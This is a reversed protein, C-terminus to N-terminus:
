RGRREPQRDNTFDVATPLIDGGNERLDGEHRHSNSLRRKRREVVTMLTIPLMDVVLAVDLQLVNVM